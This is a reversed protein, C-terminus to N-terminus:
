CAAKTLTDYDTIKLLDAPMLRQGSQLEVRDYCCVDQFMQTIWQLAQAMYPFHKSGFPLQHHGYRINGMATHQRGQQRVIKRIPFGSQKIARMDM